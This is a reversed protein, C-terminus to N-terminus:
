RKFVRRFADRVWVFPRVVLMIFFFLIAYPTMDDGIRM